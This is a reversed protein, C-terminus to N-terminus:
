LKTGIKQIEEVLLISKAEKIAMMAEPTPASALCIARALVERDARLAVLTSEALELKEMLEKRDGRWPSLLCGCAILEGESYERWTCSKEHEEPDSM